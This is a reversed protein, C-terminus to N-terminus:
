LYREIFDDLRMIIYSDGKDERVVSADVNANLGLFEPIKKRRKAQIKLELDEFTRGSILDTTDSYVAIDVEEHLGLSKGNSGWARVAKVGNDTFAKVIEREYTSGKAKSKSPM